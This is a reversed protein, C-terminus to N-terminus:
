NETMRIYGLTEIDNISKTLYTKGNNIVYLEDCIDIIHKYMHDTIIIGKNRKERLILNKISDVHIPMVQSFPEDLMCFKTQSVLITYIEVIRREGGSLNILKSKYFKDFEPFNYILDAFDLKFDSFIRKITLSKPIFRRQPLYRLDKPSRSSTLLTNGNIRISKDNPILEGFLIKMLCTKGTGNRGLIGTVKGTESKLYVNQLVRKSGFDLIVSDIELINTM